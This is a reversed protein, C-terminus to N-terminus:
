NNNEEEKLLQMYNEWECPLLYKKKNNCKKCAAAINGKTSKGGRVIPVIHDMTLEDKSFKKGCYLCIGKSVKSKWWQKNKLIRAKIKEAQIQKDSVTTTFFIHDESKM